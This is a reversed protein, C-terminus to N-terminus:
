RRHVEMSRTLPTEANWEIVDAYKSIMRIKVRREFSIIEQVTEEKARQYYPVVVQIDYKKLILEYMIENIEKDFLSSIIIVKSNPPFFRTIIRKGFELPIYSFSKSEVTLLSEVIRLYQKKGYGPYVWDVTNKLIILGLRNRTSLIANSLTLAAKVSSQIYELYDIDSKQYRRVDVLLVTNGSKETYFQNVMLRDVFATRRWNINRPDDGYEFERISYFDDGMGLFRSPIEGIVARTKRSKMRFKRLNEMEPFVRIVCTDNIRLEGKFLYLPDSFRVIIESYDYKGFNEFRIRGNIERKENNKIYLDARIDRNEISVNGEFGNSEITITYEIEEGMITIHEKFKRHVIIEGDKFLIAGLSLYVVLPITFFIAQPIRLLAGISAFLGFIIFFTIGNKSIHLGNM